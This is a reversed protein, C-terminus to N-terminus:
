SGRLRSRGLCDPDPSAGAPKVEYRLILSTGPYRAQAQTIQAGAPGTVLGAGALTVSAMELGRAGAILQPALSAARPPEPRNNLDIGRARDVDDLERGSQCMHEGNGSWLRLQGARLDAAASAPAGSRCSRRAEASSRSAAAPRASRRIERLGGVLGTM